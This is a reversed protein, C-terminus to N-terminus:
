AAGSIERSISFRVPTLCSDGCTIKIRSPFATHFADWKSTLAAETDFASSDFPEPLHHRFSSSRSNLRAFDFLFIIERQTDRPSVVPLAPKARGIKSARARTCLAHVLPSALPDQVGGTNGVFELHLVQTQNATIRQVEAPAVAM